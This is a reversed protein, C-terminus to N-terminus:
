FVLSYQVQSLEWAIGFYEDEFLFMEESIPKYIGKCGSIDFLTVCNTKDKVKNKLSNYLQMSEVDKSQIIIEKISETPSKLVYGAKDKRGVVNLQMRSFCDIQKGISKYLEDYNGLLANGAFAGCLHLCYTVEPSYLRKM